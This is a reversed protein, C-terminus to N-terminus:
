RLPAVSMTDAKGERWRTESPGAARHEVRTSNTRFDIAARRSIGDVQRSDLDLSRRGVWNLSDTGYPFNTGDKGSAQIAHTICALEKEFM